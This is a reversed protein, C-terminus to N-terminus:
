SGGSVCREFAAGIAKRNLGKGIISVKSQEAERVPQTSIEGSALELLIWKRGVRFIGKARVVTGMASSQLQRFLNELMPQSFHLNDFTLGISEYGLADQENQLYIQGEEPKEEELHIQGAPLFQRPPSSPPTAMALQYQAWDVGGYETLLVTADPNIASIADRLLVARKQDVKDCKNLLILRANLVQSEVFYRNAKYLAMFGTADAILINNITDIVDEFIQLEIIARIQGITAVGTPEIILREPHITQLIDLMQTKFDSQLTCCICGSPMEIIKSNQGQLLTGDIGVDGFENVLVVIKEKGGWEKLIRSIFTTKGSGLFGYIVDVIM